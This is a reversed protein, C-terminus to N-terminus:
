LTAFYIIYYSYRATYKLLSTFVSFDVLYKLYNLFLNSFSIAYRAIAVPDNSVKAKNILEHLTPNETGHNPPLSADNKEMEIELSDKNTSYHIDTYATTTDQVLVFDRQYKNKEFKLKALEIGFKQRQALSSCNQFAKFLHKKEEKREHKLLELELAADKRLKEEHQKKLLRARKAKRKREVVTSLIYNLASM